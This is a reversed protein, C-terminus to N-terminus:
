VFEVHVNFRGGARRVADIVWEHHMRALIPRIEEAGLRTRVIAFLTGPDGDDDPDHVLELAIREDSPLSEPIRWVAESLVDTVDPHRDVFARIAEPERLVYMTELVRM